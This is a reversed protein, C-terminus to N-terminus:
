TRELPRHPGLEPPLDVGLDVAAAAVTSVLNFEDADVAVRHADICHTVAEDPVARALALRALTRWTAHGSADAARVADRALPAAEDPRGTDLLAGAKKTLVEARAVDDTAGALLTDLRTDAIRAQEALRRARDADHALTGVIRDQLARVHGLGDTDRLRRLLRLAERCPGEAAEPDGNELHAQALLSWARARVDALDDAAALDPDDCVAQLPAVAEGPAGRRLAEVGALLQAAADSM